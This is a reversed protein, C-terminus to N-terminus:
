RFCRLSLVSATKVMEDELSIGIANFQEPPCRDQERTGAAPTRGGFQQQAQEATTRM